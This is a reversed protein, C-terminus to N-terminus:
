KINKLIGNEKLAIEYSSEEKPEYYVDDIINNPLYQQYVPM